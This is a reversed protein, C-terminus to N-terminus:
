ILHVGYQKIERIYVRTNPTKSITLLATRNAQIRDGEWVPYNGSIKLLNAMAEELFCESANNELDRWRKM